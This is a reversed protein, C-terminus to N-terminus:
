ENTVPFLCREILDLSCDALMNKSSKGANREEMTSGKGM